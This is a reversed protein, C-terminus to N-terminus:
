GEAVNTTVGQPPVVKNITGGRGSKVLKTRCKKKFQDLLEDTAPLFSCHILGGLVQAAKERVELSADELLRLVITKVKAVWEDRSIVVAMNHFAMAQLFELVALKATWSSMLSVETIKELAFEMTNPYTLAVCMMALLSTAVEVLEADTESRELRCAIPLLELFEVRNANMSRNLFGIIFQAVSKFIRVAESYALTAESEVEMSDVNHRSTPPEGHLIQLKPGIEAMLDSIRPCEPQNGGPFQFDGDYINILLSGLRERVNQFSHSFFPKVSNLVRHGATNMRWIHQAFVGQFCYIRSCSIYSTFEDNFFNEMMVEHLWHQRNPDMHEAATAFCTGWNLESEVTINKLIVRVLPIIKAYMGETRTYDWHKAGRLIGTLIEAACRHAGETNKKDEILPGVFSLFNDLFANGFEGFLCKIMVYRWRNFKDKGKKEELSWFHTLREINGRDMFFEYIVRHVEGMEDAGRDLNPQQASPAYVRYEAPWGFFGNSRFSYRPEDWERQNRPAKEIDYQLFKNDERIGISLKGGNKTPREVGAVKFPDVVLKPHERKEHKMVFLIMQIAIKREDISDHILNDLFYKTIKRNCVTQPHDLNYIMSSGIYHHRWHTGERSVTDVISDLLETYIKMKEVGRRELNKLGEAIETATPRLRTADTGILELGHEILSDPIQINITITTLEQNIVDTLYDMLAVISPKESLKTTLLGLWLKRLEVWDNKLIPKIRRQGAMVFLTGKFRDHEENPDVKLNEVLIDSICKYSYPYLALMSFLKLQAQIRVESYRSTALTVLSVMIDRHAETFLPRNCEERLDHQILVRTAVVTRLERKSHTLRYDQFVKTLNYSKIQNEYANYNHRQCHIRDWITIIAKFSEIDDEHSALLKVQLRTMLRVITLRVNSGDPMTIAKGDFGNTIQAKYTGMLPSDVIPLLKDEWNPLFNSCKTLSNVLRLTYHLDEKEISETGAIFRELRELAPVLYRHVIWECFTRAEPGAVYWDIRDDPKMKEGWHRIPLYDELPQLYAEPLSRVDLTQIASVNSLWYIVMNNLLKHTLKCKFVLARDIIPIVADRYEDRIIERPDGRVLGVLLTLYYLFDDGQKELRDLNSHDTLYDTCKETIYPVLVPLVHRSAVRAFVRLLASVIMGAVKPEFLNTQVFKILKDAVSKLIDDSCQALIAHVSSTVWAETISELKSRAQDSESQEMRISEVSSSDILQFVKDMFLLVFNELDATHCCITHEEETLDTRVIGAKSCDIIPVLCSFSTLFQLTVATKKFDNPDIGPLTSFLIPLAEVKGATYGRHGSVMARSVAVLCQLAATMKHPETVSELTTTVRCIVDEIILQPCLDALTKFIKAVDNSNMRSYMAQLAVPKMCEVFATLCADTLKHAEPVTRKWTPLKYREITLRVVLAKNLSVLIESIASVWKGSNAPHLYSEIVGM